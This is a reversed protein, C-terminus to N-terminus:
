PLHIQRCFANAPYLLTSLIRGIGPTGTVIVAGKIGPETDWELVPMQPEKRLRDIRAKMYQYQKFFYITSRTEKLDQSHLKITGGPKLNTIGAHNRYFNSYIHAPPHKTYDSPKLVEFGAPPCV